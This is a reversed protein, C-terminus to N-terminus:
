DKATATPSHPDTILIKFTIKQNPLCVMKTKLLFSQIIIANRELVFHPTPHPTHTCTYIKVRLNQRYLLIFAQRRISHTFIHLSVVHIRYSQSKKKHQFSIKFLIFLIRMAKQRSLYTLALSNDSIIIIAFRKKLIGLYQQQYGLFYM